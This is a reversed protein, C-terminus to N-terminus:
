QSQVFLSLFVFLLCLHFLSFSETALFLFSNTGNRTEVNSSIPWCKSDQASRFKGINSNRSLIHFKDINKTVKVVIQPWPKSFPWDFHAKQKSIQISCVMLYTLPDTDVNDISWNWVKINYILTILHLTAGSSRNHTCSPTLFSHCACRLDPGIEM